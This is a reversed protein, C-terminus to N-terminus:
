RHSATSWKGTGDAGETIDATSSASPPRPRTIAPDVSSKLLEFFDPERTQLTAIEQLQRIGGTAGKVTGAPSGNRNHLDYTWRAKTPDWNLGFYRQINEVTGLKLYERSIGYNNM